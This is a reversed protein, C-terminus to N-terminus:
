ERLDYEVSVRTEMINDLIGNRPFLNRNHCGTDMKSPKPLNDFQLLDDSKLEGV